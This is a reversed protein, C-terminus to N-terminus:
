AYKNINIYAMYIIHDHVHHAIGFAIIKEKKKRTGIRLVENNLILLVHSHYTLM